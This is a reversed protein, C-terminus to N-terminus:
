SQAIAEALMESARALRVASRAYRQVAEGVDRLDRDSYLPFTRSSTLRAARLSQDAEALQGRAYMFREFADAVHETM